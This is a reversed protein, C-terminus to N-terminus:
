LIRTREDFVIEEVGKQKKSDSLDRLTRIEPELMRNQKLWEVNHVKTLYREGTDCVIFVIVDDKQVIRQM